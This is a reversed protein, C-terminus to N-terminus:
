VLVRTIKTVIFQLTLFFLVRLNKQTKKKLNVPNKFLRFLDLKKLLLLILNYM